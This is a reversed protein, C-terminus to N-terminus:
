DKNQFRVLARDVNHFAALYEAMVRSVKLIVCLKRYDVVAFEEQGARRRM